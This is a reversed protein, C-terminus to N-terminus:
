KEGKSKHSACHILNPLAWKKCQKKTSMSICVCREHKLPGERKCLFCHTPFQGKRRGRKHKSGLPTKCRICIEAHLNHKFNENSM